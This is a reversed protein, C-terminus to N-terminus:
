RPVQLRATDAPQDVHPIVAQVAFGGGTRPGARLSGGQLLVRERMGILGHGAPDAIPGGDHADGRGDDVISVEVRDGLYAVAVTVRAAPGAHKIVNTLSEQVIRYVTLDTTPPLDPAVGSEEFTVPVGAAAVQEFLVPLDATGPAPALAPDADDAPDTGGSRLVAVIRRMETLAERSTGAITGLVRPALDAATGPAATIAATAGDAQVVIVSLSHAVVDHLERAIRAREAAASMETRQDREVALLRNREQLVDFQEQIHERQDRQRAGLLYAAIVTGGAAGAILVLQGDGAAASGVTWQWAGLVSGFLGAILAGIGWGRDRVGATVAHVALPAAVDGFVPETVVRLQLLCLAAVTVLVTRPLSRRAYLPVILLVSIGLGRLDRSPWYVLLTILLLGTAIVADGAWRNAELWRNVRRLM